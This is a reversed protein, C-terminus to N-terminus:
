FRYYLGFQIQRRGYYTGTIRGFGTSNISLNGVAWSPHNLVNAPIEM